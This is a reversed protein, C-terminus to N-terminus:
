DNTDLNPSLPLFGEKLPLQHEVLERSLGPM